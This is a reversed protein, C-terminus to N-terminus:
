SNNPLLSKSLHINHLKVTYSECYEFDRYYREGDWSLSTVYLKDESEVWFRIAKPGKVYKYRMLERRNKVKILKDSHVCEELVYSIADAENDFYINLSEEINDEFPENNNFYIGFVMITILDVM